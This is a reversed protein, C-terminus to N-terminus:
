GHEGLCPLVVEFAAGRGAGASEARVTGGYGEAVAKVVALGLGSGPEAQVEPADARFFRDFLRDATEADFGAGTDEVRLRAAGGAGGGHDLTVRVAGGPPTYKVANQVLNDVVEALPEPRAAVCVGDAAEVSLALGKAEAEARVRDARDHVLAGLDLRAEPDRGLAEARALRLLGRVTAGMWEADEVVRALVERYAPADRDRRLAVEAESRLTALPTLLEHAANATFRRERAVSAELRGLLENFTEALDTLEDRTRFDAPLRGGAAGPERALRGAADTLVAVPRLARRALRWGAGVALLAGGLVGATLLWALERLERDRAWEFGTVEVYGAVRGGDRVPAVLSRAPEGAWRRAVTAPGAGGPLVVPLAPRGAVNPSAYVVGGGPSLLRVYTGTPGALRTAVAASRDLAGADLGGPGAAVLPAVAALEHGLHRDFSRHAAARYGLYSFVAFAGLLVVVALAYSLALRVSIPVMQLRAM